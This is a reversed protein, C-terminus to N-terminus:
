SFFGRVYVKSRVIVPTLAVTLITGLTALVIIDGFVWGLFVSPFIAAPINGFALLAGVGFVGSVLSAAFVGVLLWLAWTKRDEVSAQAIL